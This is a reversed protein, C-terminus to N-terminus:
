CDCMRRPCAQQYNENDDGIPKIQPSISLLPPELTILFLRSTGCGGLAVSEQSAPRTPPEAADRRVVHSTVVSSSQAAHDDFEPRASHRADQVSKSHM